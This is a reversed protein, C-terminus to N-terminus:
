NLGLSGGYHAFIILVTIVVFVVLGFLRAKHNDPTPDFFTGIGWVIAGLIAAGVIQWIMVM